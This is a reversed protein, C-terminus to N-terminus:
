LSYTYALYQQLETKRLESLITDFILVRKITGQWFLAGSVVGNYSGIAFNDRNYTARSASWVKFQNLPAFENSVVNNIRNEDVQGTDLTTASSVTLMGFRPDALLGSSASFVCQFAPFKGGSANKLVVWVEPYSAPAVVTLLDDVGDFVVGDSTLTPQKSATVQAFNLGRDIYNTLYISDRLTQKATAQFDFDFVLNTTNLTPPTYGELHVMYDIYNGKREHFKQFVGAGAYFWETRITQADGYVACVRYMQFSNADSYVSDVGVSFDLPCITKIQAQLIKSVDRRMKTIDLVSYNYTNSTTITGANDSFELFITVKDLLTTGVGFLLEFVSYNYVSHVKSIITNKTQTPTTISAVAM